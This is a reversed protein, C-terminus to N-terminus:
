QRLHTESYRVIKPYDASEIFYFKGENDMASLTGKVKTSIILKGDEFVDLWSAKEGNYFVFITNNKEFIFNGSVVANFGGSIEEKIEPKIYDPLRRTLKIKLNENEYICIEYKYPNVVFIRNRNTWLRLPTRFLRADNFKSFEEPINILNAFSYLYKGERDYVNFLQDNRAGLILLNGKENLAIDIGMFDLRFSKILNGREDFIIVKRFDLVYVRGLSDLAITRPYEFEGPGVGKKGFRLIFKGDRDYKAVRNMRIDLVYINGSSDVKADAILGFVYNEDGESLGIELEKKLYLDEKTPKKTCFNFFILLQIVLCIHFSLSILNSERRRQSKKTKRESSMFRFGPM